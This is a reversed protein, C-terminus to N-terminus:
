ASLSAVPALGEGGGDGDGIL